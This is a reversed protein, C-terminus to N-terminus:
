ARDSKAAVAAREVERAGRAVEHAGRAVAGAVQDRVDDRKRTIDEVVESVRAGAQEYRESARERIRKASDNVRERIEAAARPALWLALGAGAITGTLLGIVFGYGRHEQQQTNM